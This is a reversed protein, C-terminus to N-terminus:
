LMKGPHRLLETKRPAEDLEDRGRAGALWDAKGFRRDAGVVDIPRVGKRDCKELAEIDDRLRPPLAHCGCQKRRDFAPGTVETAALKSGVRQEVVFRAVEHM